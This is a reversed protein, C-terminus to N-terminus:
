SPIRVENLAKGHSNHASPLGLCIFDQPIVGVKIMFIKGDGTKSLEGGGSLFEHKSGVAWGDYLFPHTVM